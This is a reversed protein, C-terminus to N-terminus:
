DLHRVSVPYVIEGATARGMAMILAIAGDIKLQPQHKDKIPAVLGKRAPRAVVNSICWTTILNGDHHLRGDSMASRLEDIPIAFNQPTQTFEVAQVDVGMVAQALHTANFPDYVFEIPNMRKCAELAALTIMEYDITAGETEILLGMKVWKLYHAHNPGPEDIAAEPLWYSGFLYYHPKGDSELRRYLRQMTCLDLKSALDMSVWSDCGIFDDEVLLPNSCKRWHELDFLGSATNCWENLHKTKFKSQQIPNVLAQRQQALLREGDISVNWNPNSKQLTRPSEWPDGPDASFIVGFLQENETVGDLIKCVEVHKEYCPGALNYGATTIALLIPNERSLMGTEMTDYMDPTDHEHFEDVIACSPSSGDGPKGIVPEFKSGDLDRILGKAWVSIGLRAKLEPSRSIMQHAPRFVEWAQKETTAGSYVEAGFDGDCFALYIGISAALISKGNKRPIEWYVWQYRRRKNDSRRVWGFLACVLFCQWDQLIIKEGKAAWRGKTHPLMEIFRCARAGIDPQYMYDWDARNIDNLHRACAKRVWQGALIEDAVVGRAYREAAEAHNRM